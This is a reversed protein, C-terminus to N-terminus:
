LRFTYRLKVILQSTHLQWNENMDQVTNHNYVIYFDGLPLFIYHLRTNVGISESDTDYQVFSNLQLDPTINFRV